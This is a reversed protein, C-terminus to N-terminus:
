MEGLCRGFRHLADPSLAILRRCHEDLRTRVKSLNTQHVAGLLTRLAEASTLSASLTIPEPTQSPM